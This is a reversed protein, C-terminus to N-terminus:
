RGQYTIRGITYRVKADHYMWSPLTIHNHATDHSIFDDITTSPITTTQGNSLQVTYFTDQNSEADSPISNIYGKQTNTSTPIAVPTGLPYTTTSHSTSDVSLLGQFIGGNYQLNFLSRTANLEDIKFVTSTYIQKTIPNYIELGNAVESWGIAIGQLTHAQFPSRRKVGDKTHAFYTTSFLRILQRYDPLENYVLEYPITIKSDNQIPYINHIRATHRIAWYWYSRPIQKNTIYARAM